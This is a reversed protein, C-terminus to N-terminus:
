SSLEGLSPGSHIEVKFPVNLRMEPWLEAITKHTDGMVRAVDSKVQAAVSQHADIWVCDHVTNVLYAKEGYNQKRYFERLLAGSVVQVIEGALGQVPYNKLRPISKRDKTFDFKSGTPVVFYHMPETLMVIRRINANSLTIDSTRLRLLRDAGADVCSTVLRYYQSLDKYHSEEAVILEEVERETLGTTTAITSVGAGYQRQFSFVKAQQRLQIYEPDKAIKVKKVVAEYPEKTMLAVRLCHFDINEKLETIMQHDRSLAALVVVELQSYDAEVMVGQSGFRSVLLRRLDEERPINQLNPSQSSLRGTATVCHCLEGHVRDQCEPLVARFLCGEEFLQMKKETFRLQQLASFFSLDIGKYPSLLVTVREMADAGSSASRGRLFRWLLHHLKPPTVVWLMGPTSAQEQGHQGQVVSSPVPHTSRLADRPTGMISACHSVVGRLVGDLGGLAVLAKTQAEWNARASFVSANSSSLESFDSEFSEGDQPPPPFAKNLDAFCVREVPAGDKHGRPTAAPSGGGNSSGFVAQQIASIVGTDVLPELKEHSCNTFILINRFDRNGDGNSSNNSRKGGSSSRRQPQAAATPEAKANGDAFLNQLPSYTRIIEKLQTVTVLDPREVVPLVDDIAVRINLEPVEGTASPCYLSVQELLGGIKAKCILVVVATNQILQDLSCRKCRNKITRLAAHVDATSFNVGSGSLLSDAQTYVAPVPTGTVQCVAHPFFSTVHFKTPKVPVFRSGLHRCLAGGYIITTIDQSSRFNIRQRVDDDMERTFDMMKNHLQKELREHELRLTNSFHTIQSQPVIQLGHLEMEMSALLGDMRHVISTLQRTSVAVELQTEYILKLKSLPQLSGKVPGDHYQLLTREMTALNHHNFGKLLYQAYQACWVKGGNYLFTRLKPSTRLFLLVRKIDWAVLVANEARAAPDAADPPGLPLGVPLVINPDVFEKTEGTTQNVRACQHQVAPPNMLDLATWLQTKADVIGNRASFPNDARRAATVSATTIHFFTAVRRRMDDRLKTERELREASNFISQFHEQLQQNSASGNAANAAPGRGWRRVGDSSAGGSGGGGGSDMAARTNAARGGGGNVTTTRGTSFVAELFSPIIEHQVSRRQLRYFATNPHPRRVEASDEMKMLGMWTVRSFGNLAQTLMSTLNHRHPRQLGLQSEIDQLLISFARRGKRALPFRAFSEAAAGTGIIYIVHREGLTLPEVFQGTLLDQMPPIAATGAATRTPASVFILSWHDGSGQMHNAAATAASSSSSSSSRKKAPGSSLATAVSAHLLMADASTALQAQLLEKNLMAGTSLDQSRHHFNFAALLYPQPSCSQPSAIFNKWEEAYANLVAVTLLKPNINVDKEKASIVERLKAYSFFLHDADENLRPHYSGPPPPPRAPRASSIANQLLTANPSQLTPLFLAIFSARFLGIWDNYRTKMEDLHCVLRAGSAIDEFTIEFNMTQRTSPFYVAIARFAKGHQRTLTALRLNLPHEFDLLSGISLLAATSADATAISSCAAEVTATLNPSSVIVEEQVEAAMQVEVAEGLESSSAAEGAQQHVDDDAFASTGGDRDDQADNAAAEDIAPSATPAAPPAVASPYAASVVKSRRSGRRKAAGKAMDAAQNAAQRQSKGQATAVTTAPTTATPSGSSSCKAGKGSSTSRRRPRKKKEAEAATSAGAVTTAAVAASTRPAATAGTRHFSSSHM